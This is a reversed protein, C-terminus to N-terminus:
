FFILFGLAVGSAALRALGGLRMLRLSFIAGMAAMAAFMVPMALLQHLRLRYATASFGANEIESILSPLKWFPTAEPSAYNEFASRPDLVSPITLINYNDAQEGPQAERAKHLEWFGPKLIASAADIRKSFQSNGVSDIKFIWLSVGQLKNGPMSRSNARVVIQTEGDGQRLFIPRNDTQTLAAIAQQSIREYRESLLSAFPNFVFVTLIGTVGATAMAPFVFRWASVGAARMAILESKRNLSVFAALSGFLFVFPLLVLIISPSKLLMLGLIQLSGVDSRVGVTRSIEVFDILFIISSLVLLTTLTSALVRKLVYDEIRGFSFPISFPSLKTLKRAM